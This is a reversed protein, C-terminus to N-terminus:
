SSGEPPEFDPNLADELYDALISRRAQIENVRLTGTGDDFHERIAERILGQLTRPEIADLEVQWAVGHRDVFDRYRSDTGKAPAPPIDYEDIQRRNIAIRKVVPYAGLDGLREGVHREIDEGSPDFDGFYIIRLDDWERADDQLRGLEVAAEHLFTLSPYGRCVFLDVGEADTVQRFLSALAEKEVWVQVRKPQGWWKPLTYTRPSKTLFDWGLRFHSAPTRETGYGNVMARTRDEIAEFPVRGDLRAKVLNKSLGKYQSHVNAIAQSAVLRYYIQRVTLRLDGYESIIDLVRDITADWDTRTM